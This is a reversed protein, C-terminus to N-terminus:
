DDTSGYLIYNVPWAETIGAVAKGSADRAPHYRKNLACRITTDNFEPHTSELVTAETAYGNEDVAIKVVVKARKVKTMLPWECPWTRARPQPPTIKDPRGGIGDGDGIGSGVGHGHGSGESTGGSGKDSDAGVGPLAQESPPAAYHIAEAVAQTPAQLRPRKPAAKSTRPKTKNAASGLGSGGPRRPVMLPPAAVLVRSLKPKSTTTDAHHTHPPLFLGVSAVGFILPWVQWRKPAANPWLHSTLSKM